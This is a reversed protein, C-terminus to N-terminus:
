NKTVGTLDMDSDIDEWESNDSNKSKEDKVAPAKVAPKKGFLRFRIQHWNKKVVIGVFIGFTFSSVILFSQSMDKFKQSFILNTPMNTTFFPTQNISNM